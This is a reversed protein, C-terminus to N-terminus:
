KSLLTALEIFSDVVADVEGGNAKSKVQDRVELPDESLRRVYVTKMGCAAAAQLDYIHAAVMACSSPALSLHQMAGLYVKPNPKYSGLLEGSYVVDWPLETYKAMDVLLRINGNSLAGIIVKKKLAYLGETADPWGHLRHWMLVLEQREDDNWRSALHKWRPSDLMEDLIERHMVDINTPGEGGQAVRRVGKYYGKRWEDAFEVWDESISGETRTRLQESVSERWDVVTGFVDFLLAQVGKLSESQSM